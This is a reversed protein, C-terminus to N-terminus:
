QGCAPMAGGPKIVVRLRAPLLGKRKWVLRQAPLLAGYSPSITTPEVEFTWEVDDVTVLFTRGASRLRTQGDGREVTVSPALHLPVVIGHEGRGDITDTIELLGSCKELKIRRTVGIGLRRYGYHRGEFIDRTANTHWLTCKAQADDQLSWLNALDFRNIEEEGVLPTNHSATSRFENRKGFSATYVYSGRDVVLPAGDLWAEFSLADNHGHGGRGALGVPGCDIFVHHGGDRMVYFGGQPFAASAMPATPGAQLSAALKPGVIWALESCPGSFCASLEADEVTTVVLGVLYRHDGLRQGGFPLVRADDADGWLPSTGDSRSYAAAFRAMARLRGAYRHPLREGAAKRFLAPWVFLECILRHYPVSAEFDVGDPFIQREIEQELGAWGAERWHPAAGIDGFFYGAVVLGALDATYHNGNIDAKEIHRLTFDGHLYFCTLFRARFDEDRWSQSGAFVHFLWSWVLVRLAAEMTCSWNVTYALPNADIWELLIDRTAAAYREDGQMLYAQGVPILWQLRSIEWPIKVDSPRERNVYDISRAFGSPWGMGVRYDYAWDIPRGLAIPGTGLLDVTRACALEAAQLVRASEGPAVRELAETEVAGTWAPFPRSRLRGWLEDISSAEAMALLRRRDLLRERRPALWRDLEREGEELARRIVYRPSKSLLKRARRATDLLRM